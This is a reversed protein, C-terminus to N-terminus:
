SEEESDAEDFAADPISIEVEKDFYVKAM